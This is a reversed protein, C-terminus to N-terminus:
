ITGIICCIKIGSSATIDKVSIPLVVLYPVYFLPLWRNIFMIGPDFFNVFALAAHPKAYDLVMLVAFICFMGFLASPFEISAAEFAKKLCFDVALILVLPVVWNLLGFVYLRLSQILPYTAGTSSQVPKALLEQSGTNEPTGM